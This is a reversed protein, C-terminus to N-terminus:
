PRSPARARWARPLASALDGRELVVMEAPLMDTAVTVLAVGIMPFVMGILWPKAMTHRASQLCVTFLMLLLFGNSVRLAIWLDDFVLIPLVAPLSALFV